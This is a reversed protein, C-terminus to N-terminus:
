YSENFYSLVLIKNVSKFSTVQFSYQIKGKSNLLVKRVLRRVPEPSRLRFVADIAESKSNMAEASKAWGM